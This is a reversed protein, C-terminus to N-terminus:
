SLLRSPYPRYSGVPDGQAVGEARLAPASPGRAEGTPDAVGQGSARGTAACPM